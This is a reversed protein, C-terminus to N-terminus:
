GSSPLSPRRPRSRGWESLPMLILGLAPATTLPAIVRRSIRVPLQEGIIIALVAAVTLPTVMSPRIEGRVAAASGILVAVVFLVLGPRRRLRSIM